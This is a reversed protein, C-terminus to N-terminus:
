IEVTISEKKLPCWTPIKDNPKRRQDQDYVRLIGGNPADINLFRVLNCYELTDHGMSDFDVEEVSFPCTSCKTVKM